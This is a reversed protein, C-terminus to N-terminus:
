VNRLEKKALWAALEKEASPGFFLYAWERWARLVPSRGQYAALNENIFQRLIKTGPSNPDYHLLYVRILGHSVRTWRPKILDLIASLLGENDAIRHETGYYLVSPLYRLERPSLQRLGERGHEAWLRKVKEALEALNTPQPLISCRKEYRSQIQELTALIKHPKLQPRVRCLDDITQRIWATAKLM